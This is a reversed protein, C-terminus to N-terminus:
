TEPLARISKEREISVQQPSKVPLQPFPIELKIRYEHRKRVKFYRKTKGDCYVNKRTVQPLAPSKTGNGKMERSFVRLPTMKGTRLAATM